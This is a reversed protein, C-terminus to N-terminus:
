WVQTDKRPEDGTPWHSSASHRKARISQSDHRVYQRKSHEISSDSVRLELKGDLTDVADYMAGNGCRSGCTIVKVAARNGTM